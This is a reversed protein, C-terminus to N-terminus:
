QLITDNDIFNIIFSLSIITTCVLQQRSRANEMSKEFPDFYGPTRSQALASYRETNRTGSLLDFHSHTM